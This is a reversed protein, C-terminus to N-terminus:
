GEEGSSESVSTSQYRGKSKRRGSKSRKRPNKLDRLMRSLDMQGSARDCTKGDRPTSWSRPRKTMLVGLRNRGPWAGCETHTTGSANLGTGWIDDYTSEAYTTNPKSNKIEDRFAPVQTFKAELIETMLSEKHDLFDASPVVMKGIKKADLASPAAQIAQVRVLDGSRMAKVYQFAHEASAHSVGFVKIESQYFNSLPNDAGNFVTVNDNTQTYAKCQESSPSHGEEKCVKCKPNNSCNQRFHTDEWCITCLMKRKNSPQGYHYITCKLGACHSTRPLFRDSGLPKVYIFRNGNMVGTMKKTVPHRIHEYKLDSTFELNFKSLMKMVESDDVSLPVGKVTIKLVSDTPKRLGASYPNTDFVRTNVNRIELGQSLIKARSDKSGVYIRWLDRDRQICRVDEIEKSVAECLEFDTVLNSKDTQIDTNRLYVPKLTEMISVIILLLVSSRM